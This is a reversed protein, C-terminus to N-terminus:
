KGALRFLNITSFQHLILCKFDSDINSSYGSESLELLGQIQVILSKFHWLHQIWVFRNVVFHAESLLWLKSFKFSNIGPTSEGHNHPHSVTHLMPIISIYKTSLCVYLCSSKFFAHTFCLQSHPSHAQDVAEKNRRKDDGRPHELREHQTPRPLLGKEQQFCTWGKGEKNCVQIKRFFHWFFQRICKKWLRLPLLRFYSTPVLHDKRDRRARVM